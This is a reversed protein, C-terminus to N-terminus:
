NAALRDWLHSSADINTRTRRLQADFLRLPRVGYLHFVVIAPVDVCKFRSVVICQEGRVTTTTKEIQEMRRSPEMLTRHNTEKGQEPLVSKRGMLCGQMNSDFIAVRQGDNQKQQFLQAFLLQVFHLVVLVVIRQM